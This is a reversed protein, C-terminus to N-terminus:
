REKKVTDLQERLLEFLYGDANFRIACLCDEISDDPYLPVAGRHRLHLDLVHRRLSKMYADRPMGKQWNDPARLGGDKQRRHRHMYDCFRREVAPSIFGEPDIKDTDGDRTAGTEFTRVKDEFTRATDENKQGTRCHPCDDNGTPEHSACNLNM